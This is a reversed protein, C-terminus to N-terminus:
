IEKSYSRKYIRRMKAAEFFALARGGGIISSEIFCRCNKELIRCVAFAEAADSGACLAGSDKLLVADRGRIARLFKKTYMYRKVRGSGFGPPPAYVRASVGIIQAADDLMAPVSLGAMSSALVWPSVTHIICNVDKRSAYLARHLEHFPHRCETEGGCTEGGASILLLSRVSVCGAEHSMIGAQVLRGALLKLSHEADMDM